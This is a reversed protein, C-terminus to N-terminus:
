HVPTLVVFYLLIGVVPSVVIVFFTAMFFDARWSQRGRREVFFNYAKISLTTAIGMHVGLVGSLIMTMALYTFLNMPHIM